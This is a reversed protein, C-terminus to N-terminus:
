PARLTLPYRISRAGLTADVFWVDERPADVGRAFRFTLESTRGPPLELPLASELSFDPLALRARADHLSVADDCDNTVELSLTQSEAMSFDLAYGPDLRLCDFRPAPEVAIVKVLPDPQRVIGDAPVSRQDGKVWEFRLEEGASALVIGLISGDAGATTAFVMTTQDLNTIRVTSSAPVTGAPATVYKANGETAPEAVPVVGQNVGDLDFVAAPPEPMPTAVGPGCASALLWVGAPLLWSALARGRRCFRHPRPRHM